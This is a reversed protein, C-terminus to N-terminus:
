KAYTRGYEVETAPDKFYSLSTEKAKPLIFSKSLITSSFFKNLYPISHFGFFLYIKKFIYIYINQTRFSNLFLNTM